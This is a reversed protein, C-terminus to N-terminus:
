PKIATKKVEVLSTFKSPVKAKLITGASSERPSQVEIEFDDPRLDQSVGPPTLLTVLAVRSRGELTFPVPLTKEVRKEGIVAQLSVSSVGYRIKPGLPELALQSLNLDTRRDKLSVEVTNISEIGRVLSEPGKVRVVAPNPQTRYVEFGSAVAGTTEVKVLVEKELVRELTVPIIGPEVSELRVGSPLDISINSPTVQVQREGPQVTTLDLSAVVDRPNLLDVKRKDGTVVLDVVEIPASMVESESNIELKLAVSRLKATAPTRLGTVGAWLIVTIGLALAKLQWDKLILAILLRGIFGIKSNQNSIQDAM